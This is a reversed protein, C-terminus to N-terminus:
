VPEFIVNLRDRYLRADDQGFCCFVVRDPFERERLWAIVTDTAIQCADLKPYGYVGTSICPFAISEARKEDALKLANHYCSKLLDPEGNRGTQYIPGVAHIVHKAPLRYADTLRVEGTPCGGLWRCEALLEPGAARHIAGDVGGGGMLSANAANVIIDVELRTIDDTVVVIREAITKPV